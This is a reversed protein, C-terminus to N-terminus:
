GADCKGHEEEAGLKEIAGHCRVVGRRIVIPRGPCGVGLRLSPDRRELRKQRAQDKQGEQRHNPVNKTSGSEANAVGLVKGPHGEAATQDTDRTHGHAMTM